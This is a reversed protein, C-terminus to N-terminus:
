PASEIASGAWHVRHAPGGAVPELVAHDIGIKRLRHPIGGLQITDGVHATVYRAGIHFIVKSLQQSDTPQLFALVIKESQLRPQQRPTSPHHPAPETRTVQPSPLHRLATRLHATDPSTGLLAAALEARSSLQEVTEVLSQIGRLLQLDQDLRSQLRGAAIRYELAEAAVTETDTLAETRASVPYLLLAILLTLPPSKM